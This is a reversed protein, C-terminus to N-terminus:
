VFSLSCHTGKTMTAILIAGPPPPPHSLQISSSLVLGEHCSPAVLNRVRSGATCLPGPPAQPLKELPPVLFRIKVLHGLAGHSGSCSPASPLAPAKGGGLDSCRGPLCLAAFPPPFSLLLWLHGLQIGRAGSCLGQFKRLEGLRSTQFCSQLLCSAGVAREPIFQSFLLPASM